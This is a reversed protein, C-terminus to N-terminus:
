RKKSPEGRIRVIMSPSIALLGLLGANERIIHVGLAHFTSVFPRENM